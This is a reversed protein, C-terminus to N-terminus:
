HAEQMVYRAAQAVDRAREPWILVFTTAGGSWIRSHHGFAVVDAPARQVGELMYLSMDQGNVRYMLHPVRGDAYLCRRAGILQVGNEPSSPPVHVDWGHRDALMQEVAKADAGGANAPAFVRFCKSHDATLQAALLTNSRHTALAFLALVTFVILVTTISFPVLRSAWSARPLEGHARAIAACRTRLGPPLSVNRLRAAGGRLVTRGGEESAAAVRCPPCQGLHQEVEAREAAPLTNDAFATLRSVIRRCDTM